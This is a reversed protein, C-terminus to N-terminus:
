CGQFGSLVEIFCRKRSIGKRSVEKFCGLFKRLVGKLSGIFVKSVERFNIQGEKLYGQFGRFDGKFCGEIKFSGQFKKSLKNFVMSVWKFSLPFWSLVGDFCGEIKRSVGNLSEQLVSFVNNSCGQFNRSIGKFSGQFDRKFEKLHGHFGSFVGRFYREKFYEQFKQSIGEFSKSVSKIASVEQFIGQFERLVVM